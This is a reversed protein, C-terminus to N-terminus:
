RPERASESVVVGVEEVDVEQVGAAEVSVAEVSVEEVTVEAADDAVPNVTNMPNDFKTGATGDGGM